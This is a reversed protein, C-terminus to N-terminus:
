YEREGTVSGEDRAILEHELARGNEGFVIRWAEGKKLYSDKELETISPISESELHLLKWMTFATPDGHSVIFVTKGEHQLQIKKICSIMREVIDEPKEVEGIVEPGEYNYIDGVVSELWDVPKGEVGPAFTDQLSKEEQINVGGYVDAITKASQLARMFPSTYIIDPIVNEQKLRTALLKMQNFGTESLKIDSGYVTKNPNYVEGHRILYITTIKM